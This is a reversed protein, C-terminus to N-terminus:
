CFSRVVNESRGVWAGIVKRRSICHVIQAAPLSVISGVAIRRIWIKVFNGTCSLGGEIFENFVLPSNFRTEFAHPEKVHLSPRSGQLLHIFGNMPCPDYLIGITSEGIVEVM